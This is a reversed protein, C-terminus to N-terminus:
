HNKIQHHEQCVKIRCIRKKEAIWFQFESVFNKILNRSNQFHGKNHSFIFKDYFLFHAITINMDINFDKFLNM